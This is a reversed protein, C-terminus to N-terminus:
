DVNNVKFSGSGKQQGATAGYLLVTIEIQDVATSLRRSWLFQNQWMDFLCDPIRRGLSSARVPLWNEIYICACLNHSVCANYKHKYIENDYLTPTANKCCCFFHIVSAKFIIHRGFIIIIIFCIVNLRNALMYQTHIPSHLNITTM